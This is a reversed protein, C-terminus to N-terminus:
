GFYYGYLTSIGSFTLQSEKPIIEWLPPTAKALLPIMAVCCCLGWKLMHNTITM